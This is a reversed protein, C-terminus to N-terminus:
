RVGDRVVVGHEVCLRDMHRFFARGWEDDPASADASAPRRGTEAIAARVADPILADRASVYNEQTIKM